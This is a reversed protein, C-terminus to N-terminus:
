LKAYLARLEERAQEVRRRARHRASDLIAAFHESMARNLLNAAGGGVAPRERAYSSFQAEFRQADRESDLAELDALQQECDMLARAKDAIANSVPRETPTITTM